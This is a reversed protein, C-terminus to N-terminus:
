ITLEPEPEDGFAPSIRSFNSAVFREWQPKVYEVSKRSSPDLRRGNFWVSRLGVNRGSRNVVSHKLFEESSTIWTTELRASYFIFFYNPRREHRIAAFLGADGFVVDSSRAKIQCEVFEGSPRRVVADIGFDDVLPVYVDLGEKLMNGIVWYEIRRGFGASHRFAKAM